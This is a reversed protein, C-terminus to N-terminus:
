RQTSKVVSSLDVEALSSNHANENLTADTDGIKKNKMNHLEGEVNKFFDKIEDSITSDIPTDGENNELSTNTGALLLTKIVDKYGYEVALHLPTKGSEDQWSPNAEKKLLANVINTYNYFVAQHLPTMGDIDAINVHVGEQELLVNVISENGFRVAFHLATEGCEDIANIHAGKELLFRIINLDIHNSGTAWYLPARKFVDETANIDAGAKVLAKVVNMMNCSAAAHLLTFTYSAYGPEQYHFLHNVDFEKGEWEKYVDPHEAKLIEKIAGIVYQDETDQRNLKPDSNIRDLIQRYKKYRM